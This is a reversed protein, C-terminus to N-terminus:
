RDEEEEAEEEEEEEEEEEHMTEAQPVNQWTVFGKGKGTGDKPMSVEIGLPVSVFRLRQHHIM